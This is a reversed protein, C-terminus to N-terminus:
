DEGDWYDLREVRAILKIGRFHVKNSRPFYGIDNPERTGYALFTLGGAGARVAHAVGTGPPLGIVHGARIPTEEDGLLLAGEGELIVYVEEEASHCHQPCALKGPEVVSHALGARVSGAGRGLDRAVDGVRPRSTRHRPLDDLNVVTPPRPGPPPLEPPGAEAERVFQVPLGEVARPESELWRGGVLSRGLRPFGVAEDDERTGFALVDLDELAHLTHAGKGPLYVIADGPGVECTRGAQWALGRGGLVFFIEEERGHVHAPTSWGRAPVQIRRLGVRQSGAAEGLLTWTGRIHGVDYERRPADDFHAIGM